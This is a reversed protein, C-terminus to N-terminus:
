DKNKRRGLKVWVGQHVAWAVTYSLRHKCVKILVMYRSCVLSWPQPCHLVLQGGFIVMKKVFFIKGFIGNRQIRQLTLQTPHPLYLFSPPQTFASVNRDNRLSPVRVQSLLAIAKGWPPWLHFLPVRVWRPATATSRLCLIGWVGTHALDGPGLETFGVAQHQSLFFLSTEWGSM